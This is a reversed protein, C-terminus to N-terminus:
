GDRLARAFYDTFPKTLYRLPSRTGTQAYVEVPMGPLLTLTATLNQAEAANLQVEARYHSLGSRDDQFADASLLSVTGTLYPTQRRDFASLRLTVPQGIFFQDIETAPVQTTVILPRHRPILFLIPDAPSIVSRRAFVAMGYVTGAVPARIDLRNLQRLVTARRATLDRETAHLDRLRTIAEERRSSALGLLAIDIETMREAAQAARATLEGARGLLDAQARQLALVHSAQVLQRDLLSQQDNLEHSILNRQITLADQQATIGNIQSAIQAHQQTLQAASKEYTDRRAAFLQEQLQMMTAAEPRETQLLIPHFRLATAKDREAELLARRALIEILQEEVVSLESQLDHADLRILLDGAAVHSGETVFIEAVVGGVPHQVIQRNREVAIQGGTIVAGDIQAMVAWSGVGGILLALAALGILIYRRVPWPTM